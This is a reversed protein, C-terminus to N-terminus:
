DAFFDLRGLSLNKNIFEAKKHKQGDLYLIKCNVVISLVVNCVVMWNPIQFNSYIKPPNFGSTWFRLCWNIQEIFYLIILVFNYSVNWCLKSFWVSSCNQIFFTYNNLVFLWWYIPCPPYFGKWLWMLCVWSSIYM